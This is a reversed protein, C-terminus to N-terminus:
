EGRLYKHLTREEGRRDFHQQILPVAGAALAGKAAHAGIHRLKGVASLGKMPNRGEIASGIGAIIPAAAAGITAYRAVRGPTSRNRNLTDLRNLASTAQEDSVAGLKLLEDITSSFNM